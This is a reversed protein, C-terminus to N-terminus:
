ATASQYGFHHFFLPAKPMLLCVAGHHGARDRGVVRFAACFAPSLRTRASLAPVSRASLAAPRIHPAIRIAHRIKWFGALQLERALFGLSSRGSEIRRSHGSAASTTYFGKAIETEPTM